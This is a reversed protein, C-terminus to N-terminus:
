LKPRPPAYEVIKDRSKAGRIITLASRKVGLHEALFELLAKNAKGEIAPATLYVKLRGPEEVAKNRKANPVVRINLRM